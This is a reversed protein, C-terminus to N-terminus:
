DESVVLKSLLLRLAIVFVANFAILLAFFVFSGFSVFETLLISSVLIFIPLLMGHVFSASLYTLTLPSGCGDCTNPTVSSRLVFGITKNDGCVPCTKM